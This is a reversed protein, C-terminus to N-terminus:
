AEKATKKVALGAKMDAPVARLIAAPARRDRARDKCVTFRGTKYYVPDAYNGDAAVDKAYKDASLLKSSGLDSVKANLDADLLINAPKIDGHVHRYEGHSHMHSLAEASGIAIDLRKPLRLTTGPQKDYYAGHLKDHLSGNSVFEFVLIPVDTELCCGLLRVVNAHRIQFQFTIENVFMDKWSKDQEQAPGDHGLTRQRRRAEEKAVSCKVAVQQCSRRRHDDGKGFYGGGIPESYRNTIKWLETETYFKIGALSKLLDGGNRNLQERRKRTLLLTIALSAMLVPVIITTCGDIIYPNGKYGKSCKCLYGSGQTANICYSHASLCASATSKASTGSGDPTLLCPGDSRIAWDFVMPYTRQGVRKTFGGVGKLDEQKFKYMRGDPINTLTSIKLYKLIMHGLQLLSFVLCVVFSPIEEQYGQAARLEISHDMKLSSMLDPSGKCVEM